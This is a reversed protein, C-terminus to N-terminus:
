NILWYLVNEQPLKNKEQKTTCYKISLAYHHGDIPCLLWFTPWLSRWPFESRVVFYVFEEPVQSGTCLPCPLYLVFMYLSTSIKSLGIIILGGSKCYGSQFYQPIMMTPPTWLYQLNILKLKFKCSWSSLILM